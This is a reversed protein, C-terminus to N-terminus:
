SGVFRAFIHRQAVHHEEERTGALKKFGAVLPQHRCLKRRFSDLAQDQHASLKIHGYQVISKVAFAQFGAGAAQIFAQPAMCPLYEVVQGAHAFPLIHRFGRGQHAISTRWNKGTGMGPLNGVLRLLVPGVGHAVRMLLKVTHRLAAPFGSEGVGVQDFQGVPFRQRSRQFLSTGVLFVEQGLLTSPQFLFQGCPLGVQQALQAFLGFRAHSRQLLVIQLAQGLTLLALLRLHVFDAGRQGLKQAVGDRLCVFSLALQQILDSGAGLAGALQLLARAVLAYCLRELDTVRLPVVWECPAIVM